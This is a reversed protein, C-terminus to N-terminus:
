VIKQTLEFCMNVLNYLIEHTNDMNVEQYNFFPPITEDPLWMAEEEASPLESLTYYGWNLLRWDTANEPQHQFQNVIQECETILNFIVM